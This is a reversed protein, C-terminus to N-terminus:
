NAALPYRRLRRHPDDDKSPSLILIWSTILRSTRTLRESIFDLPVFKGPFAVKRMRLGDFSSSLQSTM